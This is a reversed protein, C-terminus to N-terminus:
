FFIWEKNKDDCVYCHVQQWASGIALSPPGFQNVLDELRLDQNKCQDRITNFINEWDKLSLLTDLELYGLNYSIESYISATEKSVSDVKSFYRLLHGAVGSASFLEKENLYNLHTELDDEKEDIFALDDLLFRFFSEVGFHDHAYMEPRIVSYKLINLKRDKLEQSTKM